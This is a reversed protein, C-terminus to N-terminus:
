ASSFNPLDTLRSQKWTLKAGVVKKTCFKHWPIILVFSLQLVKCWNRIKKIGLQLKNVDGHWTTEM